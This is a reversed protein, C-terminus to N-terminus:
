LSCCNRSIQRIDRTELHSSHLCPQLDFFVNVKSSKYPNTVIRASKTKTSNIPLHSRPHPASHTRHTSFIEAKIIIAINSRLACCLLRSISAEFLVPAQKEIVSKVFEVCGGLIFLICKCTSKGQIQLLQNKIM